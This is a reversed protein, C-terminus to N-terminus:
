RNLFKVIIDAYIRNDKWYHNHTFLHKFYTKFYAKPHKAKYCKKFKCDINKVKDYM